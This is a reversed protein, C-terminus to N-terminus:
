GKPIAGMQHRSRRGDIGNIWPADCKAFVGGSSIRIPLSQNNESLLSDPADGIPDGGDHPYRRRLRFNGMGKQHIDSTQGYAM